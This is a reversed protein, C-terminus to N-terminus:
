KLKDIIGKVTAAGLGKIKLAVITEWTDFKQDPQSDRIAVINPVLKIAAKSVGSREMALALENQSFTNILNLTNATNISDISDPLVAVKKSTTVKLAKDPKSKEKKPLKTLKPEFVEAPKVVKVSEVPLPDKPKPLDPQEIPDVRVTPPNVRDIMLAELMQKQEAIQQVLPQIQQSIAAVLTPMLQEIGSPTPASAMVVPRDQNLLQLQEIASPQINANIVFANVMEAKSSNKEKAALAAYYERHGEIVTYKEEGSKKLILPRILGDTALILNALQELDSEAFSSRPLDSSIDKIDVFYCKIM